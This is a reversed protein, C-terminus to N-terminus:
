EWYMGGERSLLINIIILWYHIRIVELSPWGKEASSSCRIWYFPHSPLELDLSRVPHRPGSDPSARVKLTHSYPMLDPWGKIIHTMVGMRDAGKGVVSGKQAARSWSTVQESGSTLRMTRGVCLLGEAQVMGHSQRGQWLVPTPRLFDRTLSSPHGELSWWGDASSNTAHGPVRRGCAETLMEWDRHCSKGAHNSEASGQSLGWERGRWHMVEGEVTSLFVRSRESGPGKKRQERRRSFTWGRKGRSSDIGLVARGWPWWPGKGLEGPETEEWIDFWRVM